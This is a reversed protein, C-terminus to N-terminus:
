GGEVSGLPPRLRGAKWETLVMESSFGRVGGAAADAELVHLGSTDGCALLQSAVWCRVHRSEDSLLSKFAELGEPGRDCLCRWADAMTKHLVHDRPAPTAFDGKKIAASRFSRIAQDIDM